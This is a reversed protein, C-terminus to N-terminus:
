RQHSRLWKVLAAEDYRVSKGFKIYPPGEGRMRARALWSMSLKLFRAADRPKLLVLVSDITTM